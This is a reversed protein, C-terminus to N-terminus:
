SPHVESIRGLKWQLPSLNPDNVLVMKREPLTGVKTTIPGADDVAVKVFPRVQQVLRLYTLWKQTLFYQDIGIIGALWDFSSHIRVVLFSAFRRMVGIKAPFTEEKPAVRSKVSFIHVGILGNSHVVRLYVVAVYAVESSDCFGHLEVRCSQTPVFRPIQINSLNPFGSVIRLWKQRIDQPVEADWDVGALWLEQILIKAAVIVPCLFGVPDFIRATELLVVCKTVRNHLPTVNYSFVDKVPQWAVGLVKVSSDKDLSVTSSEISRVSDPLRQLFEPSNSCWKRLEFEGKKLLDFLQNQLDASDISDSESVVDDMYTYRSLIKAAEPYESKHDEALQQPVRIALFTSSTIGYTVTKLRYTQPEDTPFTWWLILQYNLHEDTILIQRYMQRIDSTFAIEHLRFNCILDGVEKQLKPGILQYDNLSDGKSTLASAVFVIRLKTTSSSPRLIGHHPIFFHNGKIEGSVLEMHGSKLYDEMFDVYLNRFQENCAFRREMSILRKFALSRSEGLSPEGDRFPLSVVFKGSELRKHTQVFIEECQQDEASLASKEPVSEIEWFQRIAKDLSEDSERQPIM